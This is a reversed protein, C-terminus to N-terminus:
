ARWYTNNDWTQGSDWTIGEPEPIPVPCGDGMEKILAQFGKSGSYTHKSLRDSLSGTYGLSGLYNYIRENVTMGGYPALCKFIRENVM